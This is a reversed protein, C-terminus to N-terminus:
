FHMDLNGDGMTLFWRPLDIFAQLRSDKPHLWVAASSHNRFPIPFFGHRFLRRRYPASMVSCVIAKAQEGRLLEEAHRLLLSFTERDEALHDMMFGCRVGLHDSIRVVLYGLASSDRSAALITYHSDPGSSFRWNLYRRDRVAIVSHKGNARLWLQDFRDDFSDIREVKADPASASWDIARHVASAGAGLISAGAALLHNDTALGMLARWDLPKILPVIPMISHVPVPLDRRREQARRWGSSIRRSAANQWGFILPHDTRLQNNVIQALRWKRYQPHVTWNCEVAAWQERGNILFKQPLAGIMAVVEDRPNKLLVLYPEDEHEVPQEQGSRWKEAFRAVREASYNTRLFALSPERNARRAHEADRNFPNDDYMWNWNRILIPAADPYSAHVLEFVRDRDSKLYRAIRLEESM